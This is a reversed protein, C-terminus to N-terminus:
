VCAQASRAVDDDMAAPLAALAAGDLCANTSFDKTFLVGLPCVGGDTLISRVREGYGPVQFIGGHAVVCSHEPRFRFARVLGTIVHATALASDQYLELALPDGSLYRAAIERGSLAVGRRQQWIDEIGAKSAAVLELCVHTAGLLGCPKRQGFRNLRSEAPVHGPECAFITGSSLVAGGLGSGNIVYIVHQASPYRATAEVSAAMIGAEADNAVAVSPFLRAFDRHYRDLDHYLGPLNPAAVLRTGDTPGAFSIGVPLRDRRAKVALDALLEVYGYGGKSSRTIAGPQQELGGDRIRYCAAILKDGGIDVALM